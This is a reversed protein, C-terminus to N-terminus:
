LVEKEQREREAIGHRLNKQVVTVDRRRTQERLVEKALRDLEACGALLANVEELVAAELVPQPSPTPPVSPPVM